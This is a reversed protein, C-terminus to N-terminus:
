FSDNPYDRDRPFAFVVIAAIFGVAAGMAGGLVFNASVLLVGGATGALMFMGTLAARRM